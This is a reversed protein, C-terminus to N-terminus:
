RCILRGWRDRWCHRRPAWVSRCQVRGWRDRWCHRRWQVNTIDPASAAIQGPAPPAVPAASASAAGAIMFGAFAACLVLKTM